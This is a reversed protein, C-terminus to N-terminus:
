LSGRLIFPLKQRIEAKKIPQVGNAYKVHQAMEILELYQTAVSLFSCYETPNVGLRQRASAKVRSQYGM